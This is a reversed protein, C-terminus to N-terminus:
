LSPSEQAGRQRRGEVEVHAEGLGVDAQDGLVGSQPRRHDAAQEAAQPHHLSPMLRASHSNPTTCSTDIKPKAQSAQRTRVLRSRRPSRSDSASTIPKSASPTPSPVAAKTAKM